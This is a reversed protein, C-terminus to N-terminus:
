LFYKDLFAEYMNRWPQWEPQETLFHNHFITILMGNVQKVATYYQDLENAAQQATLHQEFICNADMFCFPHILLRTVNDHTLDYWSFPSAVSARFAMSVAMGWQTIMQSVLM